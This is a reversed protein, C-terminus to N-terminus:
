ESTFFCARCIASTVRDRAMGGHSGSGCCASIRRRVESAPHPFRASEASPRAPLPRLRRRGIQRRLRFKHLAPPEPFRVQNEGRVLRQSKRRLAGVRVPIKNERHRDLFRSPHLRNLNTGAVLAVHVVRVNQHIARACRAPPFGLRARTKAAHLNADLRLYEIGVAMQEEPLRSRNRVNLRLSHRQTEVFAGIKIRLVCRCGDPFGSTIWGLM